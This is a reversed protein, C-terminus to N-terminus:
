PLYVTLRIMNHDSPITGIFRGSRDLRAVTEWEAVRMPSVFMYDSMPADADWRPKRQYDNFTKLNAQILKKATGPDGARGRLPDKLGANVITQYVANGPRRLGGSNFDGVVVMPLGDPNAETIAAVLQRAASARIRTLKAGDRPEFHTNVFLFQKGNAKQRFTAWSVHRQIGLTNSGALARYGQSVVEVTAPNYVIRDGGLVEDRNVMAWEDGLARMLDDYQRSGNGARSKTAEQLGIVDVQEDEITRVVAPRRESWKKEVSKLVNFSGLRLPLSEAPPRSQVISWDSLPRAQADMVRVRVYYTTDAKLRGFTTTTEDLERRRVKAFDATASLDVLYRAGEEDSSTWRPTISTSTLSDLEVTPAAEGFPAVPTTFSTAASAPGAETRVRVYYTTEPALPTLVLAELRTETVAPTTFSSDTDVEVVYPGGAGGDWSVAALTARASVYIGSPPQVPEAAFAAPASVCALITAL